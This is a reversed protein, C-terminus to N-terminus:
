GRQNHKRKGKEWERYTLDGDVYYPEKKGTQPNIRYAVREGPSFDFGRYHPILTCRCNYVLSPEATPDGPYEIEKTGVKFKQDLPQIQGDLERHTDRTRWDLSAVWQRDIELGLDKAERYAQMRGSNQAGTMATRAYLVASKEAATSTDRAIRKAIEPIGEGQIIGQAIANAIKHQQWGMAKETDVKRRPLLEPKDKILRSVTDMDYISFNVAAGTDREIEYMAYNTNEVFVPAMKGNTLEAAKKDAETLVKAISAQKDKWQKGIFIQRTLWTKMDEETIEGAKLQALKRKQIRQHRLVFARLKDGIDLYAEKYTDFIEEELKKLEADTWKEAYTAVCDGGKQWVRTEQGTKAGRLAELRKFSYKDM